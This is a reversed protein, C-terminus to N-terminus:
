YDSNRWLKIERDAIWEAHHRLRKFSAAQEEKAQEETECWGADFGGTEEGDRTITWGWPKGDGEPQYRIPDLTLESRLQEEVADVHAERIEVERMRRDERNWDMIVPDMSM